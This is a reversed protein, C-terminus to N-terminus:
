CCPILYIYVYKENRGEVTFRVVSSLYSDGKNTNTDRIKVNTVCVNDCNSSKQLIQKIVNDDFAPSINEQLEKSVMKM